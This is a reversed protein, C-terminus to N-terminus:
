NQRYLVDKNSGCAVASGLEMQARRVRKADVHEGCGEDRSFECGVGEDVLLERENGQFSQHAWCRAAQHSANGMGLHRCNDTRAELARALGHRETRKRAIGHWGQSRQNM